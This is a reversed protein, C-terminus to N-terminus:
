REGLRRALVDVVDSVTEIGREDDEEFCLEFRNELETVLTLKQISDLHLDRFLHTSESVDRISLHEEFVRLVEGLISPREM